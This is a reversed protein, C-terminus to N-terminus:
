HRTSAAIDDMRIELTIRGQPISFREALGTIMEAATEMSPAIEEGWAAGEPATTLGNHLRVQVVYSNDEETIRAFLHTFPGRDIPSPEVITMYTAELVPSFHVSNVFARGYDNAFSKDHGEPAKEEICYTGRWGSQPSGRTFSLKSPVFFEFPGHPPRNAPL